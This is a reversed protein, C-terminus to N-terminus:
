NVGAEELVKGTEPLKDLYNHIKKIKSM